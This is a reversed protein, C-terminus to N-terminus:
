DEGIQNYSNYKIKFFSVRILLLELDMFEAQGTNQIELKLLLLVKVQVLTYWKFLNVKKLFSLEWM